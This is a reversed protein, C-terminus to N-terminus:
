PTPSPYTFSCNTYRLPPLWLEAEPARTRGGGGMGKARQEFGRGGIWGKIIETLPPGCGVWGGMTPTWARSPQYLSPVDQLIRKATSDASLSSSWQKGHKPPLAPALLVSVSTPAQVRSRGM